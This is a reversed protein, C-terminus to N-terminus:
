LEELRKNILEQVKPLRTEIKQSLERFEKRQEARLLKYDLAYEFRLLYDSRIQEVLKLLEADYQLYLTQPFRLSEVYANWDDLTQQLEKNEGEKTNDSHSKTAIVLKDLKTAMLALETRLKLLPKSRVEWQRKHSDTERARELEREFRKDSHEIQKKIGWYSFGGGVFVGVFGVLAYIVGDM